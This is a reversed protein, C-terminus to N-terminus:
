SNVRDRNKFIKKYKDLILKLTLICIAIPYYPPRLIAVFCDLVGAGRFFDFRSRLTFIITQIMIIDM